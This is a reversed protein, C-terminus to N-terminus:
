KPALSPWCKLSRTSFCTTGGQSHEAVCISSPRQAGREWREFEVEVRGNGLGIDLGLISVKVGDGLWQNRRGRDEVSSEEERALEGGEGASNLLDAALSGDAVLEGSAFAFLGLVRDENSGRGDGGEDWGVFSEALKRFLEDEEQERRESLLAQSSDQLVVDERVVDQEALVQVFDRTVVLLSTPDDILDLGHHVVVRREM